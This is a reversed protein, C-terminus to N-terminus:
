RNDDDTRDVHTRLKYKEVARFQENDGDDDSCYIRNIEEEYEIRYKKLLEDLSLEIFEDMHGDEEGKYKIINHNEEATNPSLYAFDLRKSWSAIKKECKTKM